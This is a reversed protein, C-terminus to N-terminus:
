LSNLIPFDNGNQIVNIGGPVFFETNPYNLRKWNNKIFDIVFNFVFIIM